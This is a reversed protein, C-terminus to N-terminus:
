ISALDAPEVVRPRIREARPRKVYREEYDSALAEVVDFGEDPWFAGVLREAEEGGEEPRDILVSVSRASDYAWVLSHRAGDIHVFSLREEELAGEHETREFTAPCM